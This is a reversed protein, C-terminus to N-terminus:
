SRALEYLYNAWATMMKRREVLYEAHNYADRVSKGEVHALQREIVDPPWGIESLHHYGIFTSM